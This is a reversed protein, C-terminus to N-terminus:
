SKVYRGWFKKFIGAIGQPFFMIIILLLIGYVIMEYDEFNTILEPFATLMTAGLTGGVISGLGGVTAMIFIDISYKLNFSIPSIFGSYLAFISGTLSTVAAVVVFVILKVRSVNVGFSKSAFESEKIFKLKYSMYSKDFLELLISFIFFFISIFVYFKDENDLSFGFLSLKPIGVLGSPGGTYDSFENFLIYMIMGFGLTAMALYHGHLKLTPYGVVFAVFSAIVIGILITLLPNYGFHVTLIGTTYAGIGYFAAQGLSIVGTYGFLINLMSANIANIMVYILISKYFQNDVFIYFLVIAIALFSLYFLNLKKM